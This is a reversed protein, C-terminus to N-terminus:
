VRTSNEFIEGEVDSISKNNVFKKAVKGQDLVIFEDCLDVLTDLIHSSIIFTCDKKKEKLLKKLKYIYKVDISNFPEDLLILDYKKIFLPILTLKKRMGQSLEEISYDAKDELDLISLLEEVSLKTSSYKKVLELLEKVTLFDYLEMEAPLFLTKYDEKEYEVEYICGAKLYGSLISMFTTKGAGNEGVLGIIRSKEIYINQIDFEFEKKYKHKIQLIHM